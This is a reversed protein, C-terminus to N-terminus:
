TKRRMKCKANGVDEVDMVRFGAKILEEAFLGQGPIRVGSFTGDYIENVGCSPSRSQLILLEVGEARALDVAKRVGTLCAEHVDQGHENIVRGSRREIRPRPTPFGALVEPCVEVVTHGKLLEALAASYNNGGNYKCNRGLLCASVMIKM